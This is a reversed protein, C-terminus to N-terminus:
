RSGWLEEKFAQLDRARAPSPQRATAYWARHLARVDATAAALMAEKGERTLGGRCLKVLAIEDDVTDGAAALTAQQACLAAQQDRLPRSRAVLGAIKRDIDGSRLGALFRAVARHAEVTRQWSRMRDAHAAQWDEFIGVMKVAQRETPRNLHPIPAAARSLKRLKRLEDEIEALEARVPDLAAKLKIGDAGADRERGKAQRQRWKHLVVGALGGQGEGFHARITPDAHSTGLYEALATAQHKRDLVRWRLELERIQGVRGDIGRTDTAGLRRLMRLNPDEGGGSAGGREISAVVQAFNGAQGLESAAGMLLRQLRPCFLERDLAGRQHQHHIGTDNVSPTTSTTTAEM